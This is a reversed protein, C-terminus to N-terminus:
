MNYSVLTFDKAIGLKGNFLDLLGADLVNIVRVEGV